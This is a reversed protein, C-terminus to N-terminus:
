ATWSRASWRRWRRPIRASTSSARVKAYFGQVPLVALMTAPYQGATRYSEMLGSARDQGRPTFARIGGPTVEGFL